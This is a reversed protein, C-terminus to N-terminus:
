SPPGSIAFVHVTVFRPSLTRRSACPVTMARHFNSVPEVVSWKWIQHYQYLEVCFFHIM